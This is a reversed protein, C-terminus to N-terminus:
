SEPRLFLLGTDGSGETFLEITGLEPSITATFPLESGPNTYSAKGTPEILFSFILEGSFSIRDDAAIVTTPAATTFSGTVRAEGDADPQWFVVTYDGAVEGNPEVVFEGTASEFRTVGGGALYLDSAAAASIRYIGAIDASPDDVTAEDVTAEDADVAEASEAVDAEADVADASEAVDANAELADSIDSGTSVVDDGLVTEGGDGSTLAVVGFILALLFMVLFAAWVGPSLFGREDETISRM